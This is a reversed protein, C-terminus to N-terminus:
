IQLSITSNIAINTEGLIETKNTVVKFPLPSKKIKIKGLLKKMIRWAKKADGQFKMLKESYFRKKSKRNIAEFLNKYAKYNAKNISTRHKKMSSKKENPQSLLAM